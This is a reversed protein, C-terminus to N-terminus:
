CANFLKTTTLMSMLTKLHQLMNLIFIAVIPVVFGIMHLWNKAVQTSSIFYLNLHVNTM